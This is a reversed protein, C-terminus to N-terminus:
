LAMEVKFNASFQIFVVIIHKEEKKKTFGHTEIWFRWSPHFQHQRSPSPRPFYFLECHWHFGTNTYLIITYWVRCAYVMRLVVRKIKYNVDTRLSSIGRSAYICLILWWSFIGRLSRPTVPKRDSKVSYTEFLKDNKKKKDGTRYIIFTIKFIFQIKKRTM